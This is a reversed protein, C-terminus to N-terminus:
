KDKSEAERRRDSPKPKEAEKPGRDHFLREIKGEGPWKSFNDTIKVLEAQGKKSLTGMTKKIKTIKERIDNDPKAAERRRDAKTNPHAELIAEIENIQLQLEECINKYYKVLYNM